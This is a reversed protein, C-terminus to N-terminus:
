RQQMIKTKTLVKLAIQNGYCRMEYMNIYLKANM